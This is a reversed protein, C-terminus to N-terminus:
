NPTTPQMADKCVMNQSFDSPVGDSLSEFSDIPTHPMALESTNRAPFTQLLEFPSKMASNRIRRHSETPGLPVQVTPPVPPNSDANSATNGMSWGTNTSSGGSPMSMTM